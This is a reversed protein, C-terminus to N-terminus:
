PVVVSHTVGAMRGVTDTVTLHVRFDSGFAYTHTATPATSDSTTEDDFDFHYSAISAPGTSGAGNFTCTRGTCTFTFAATPGPSLTFTKSASATQGASDTLTLVATFTGFSAYTWTPASFISGGTATNGDGFAWSWTAIFVDDSSAESDFTCSRDICVVSFVPHPPLDVVSTTGPSPRALTPDSSSAQGVEESATVCAGFLSAIVLCSLGSGVARVSM